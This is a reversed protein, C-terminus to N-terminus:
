LNGIMRLGLSDRTGPTTTLEFSIYEIAKYGIAANYEGDERWRFWAYPKHIRPEINIRGWWKSDM